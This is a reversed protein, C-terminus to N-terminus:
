GNECQYHLDWRPFGLAVNQRFMSSLGKAGHELKLSEFWRGTVSVRITKKLVDVGNEVQCEYSGADESRIANLKLYNGHSVKHSLQGHKFWTMVATPSGMATCEVSVDQGAVAIVDNPEKLWKLTQKVILQLNQSDQGASNRAACTYNGSDSSKLKEFILITLLADNDNKIQIGIQSLTLSDKLWSFQIPSSGKSLSCTLTLKSGEQLKLDKLQETFVPAELVTRKSKFNRIGEDRRNVQNIKLQNGRHLEEKRHQSLKYWIFTPVPSGSASCEIVIDEGIIASRDVPEKIWKPSQKVNLNVMISDQGASNQAKCTYNGSDLATLKDITLVSLDQTDTIKADLKTLSTGDKSWSFGVPSSGKRLSCMFSFKEGEEFLLSNSMKVIEPAETIARTVSDREYGHVYLGLFLLVVIGFM